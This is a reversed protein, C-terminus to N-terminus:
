SQVQAKLPLHTLAWSIRGVTMRYCLLSGLIVASKMWVLKSNLGLLEEMIQSQLFIRGLLRLVRLLMCFNPKMFFLMGPFSSSRLKLIM